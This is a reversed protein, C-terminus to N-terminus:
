EDLSINRPSLKSLINKRIADREDATKPSADINVNQTAATVDVSNRKGFDQPFRRELTWQISQPSMATDNVTKLKTLLDRMLQSEAERVTAYFRCYIPDKEGDRGWNMWNNWTEPTIGLAGSTGAYSM